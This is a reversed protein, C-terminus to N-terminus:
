RARKGGLLPLPPTGDLKRENPEFDEGRARTIGLDTDWQSRFWNEFAEFAERSLELDLRLRYRLRPPTFGRLREHFYDRQAENEITAEFSNIRVHESM